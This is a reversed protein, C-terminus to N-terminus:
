ERLEDFRREFLAGGVETLLKRIVYENKCSLILKWVKGNVEWYYQALRDETLNLDEFDYDFLSKEETEYCLIGKRYICTKAGHKKLIRGHENESLVEKGEAFYDNFNEFFDQVEQVYGIYFCTKGECPEIVDVVEMSHEGEDIANCYVERLAQWCSWKHGTETTFSTKQNDIMVVEFEMDRFKETKTEITIEDMGAYLKIPIQNRLFYPIAFKNGSGFQGIKTKDNRKTSAGLLTLAEVEIVGANTIKLYKM